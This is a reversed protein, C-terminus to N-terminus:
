LLKHHFAEHIQVQVMAPLLDLRLSKDQPKSESRRSDIYWLIVKDLLDGPRPMSRVGVFISYLQHHATLRAFERPLELLIFRQINFDLALLM